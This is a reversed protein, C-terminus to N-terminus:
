DRIERKRGTFRDFLERHRSLSYEDTRTEYERV